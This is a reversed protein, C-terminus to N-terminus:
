SMCGRPPDFLDSSLTRAIATYTHDILAVLSPSRGDTTDLNAGLWNWFFPMLPITVLVSGLGAGKLSPHLAEQTGDVIM